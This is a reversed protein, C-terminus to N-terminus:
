HNRPIFVVKGSKQDYSRLYEMKCKCKFYLIGTEPERSMYGILPRLCESNTCFQLHEPKEDDQDQWNM